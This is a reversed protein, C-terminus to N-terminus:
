VRERLGFKVRHDLKTCVIVGRYLLSRMTLVALEREAPLLTDWEIAKASEPGRTRTALRVQQEHYERALHESCETLVNRKRVQEILVPNKGAASGTQGPRTRKGQRQSWAAADNQDLEKSM